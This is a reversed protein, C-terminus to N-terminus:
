FRDEIARAPLAAHTMHAQREAIVALTSLPAGPVDIM